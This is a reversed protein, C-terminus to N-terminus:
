FTKKADAGASVLNADISADVKVEIGKTISATASASGNVNLAPGEVHGSLDVGGVSGSASASLGSNASFHDSVNVGARSNKVDQVPSDNISFSPQVDPNVSVRNTTTPNLGSAQATPRNSGVPATM